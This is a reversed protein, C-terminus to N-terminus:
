NSVKGGLVVDVSGNPPLFNGLLGSEAVYVGACMIGLYVVFGYKM